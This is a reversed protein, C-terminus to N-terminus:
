CTTKELQLGCEVPFIRGTGGCRARGTGLDSAHGACLGGRIPLDPRTQGNDLEVDDSRYAARFWVDASLRDRRLANLTRLHLGWDGIRNLVGRMRGVDGVSTWGFIREFGAGHELSQTNTRRVM